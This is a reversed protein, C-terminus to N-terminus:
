VGARNGLSRNNRVNMSDAVKNTDRLHIIAVLPVLIKLLGWDLTFSSRGSRTCYRALGEKPSLDVVGAPQVTHMRSLVLHECPAGLRVFVLELIQLRWEHPEQGQGIIRCKSM